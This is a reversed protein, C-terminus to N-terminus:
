ESQMFGKVAAFIHEADEEDYISEVHMAANRWPNKVADLSAYVGEFFAGDGSMRSSSTPWKGEIADSIKKLIVGWNREAPKAPNPIGLCLATSKIGIEMIRMSHFVCATNRKLALCRGAEYIDKSASPFANEVVMGFANNGAELYHSHKSAVTFVPKDSLEPPVMQCIQTALDRLEIIKRHGILVNGRAVLIDPVDITAAQLVEDFVRLKSLSVNLGIEEATQILTRVDRKLNEYEDKHFTYDQLPREISPTPYRRLSEMWGNLGELAGVFKGSDFFKMIDWLSWLRGPAFRGASSM